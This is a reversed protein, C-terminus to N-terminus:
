NWVRSPVRFRMADGYAALRWFLRLDFGRIHATREAVPYCRPPAPFSFRLAADPYCQKPLDGLMAASSAPSPTGQHSHSAQSNGSWAWDYIARQDPSATTIEKLVLPTIWPGLEVSQVCNATAKRDDNHWVLCLRALPFFWSPSPERLLTDSASLITNSVRHIFCVTDVVMTGSCCRTNGYERSNSNQKMMIWRWGRLLGFPLGYKNISPWRFLANESTDQKKSQQATSLGPKTSWPWGTLWCRMLGHRTSASQNNSLVSTIILM